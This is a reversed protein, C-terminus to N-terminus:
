RTVLETLFRVARPDHSQGLWFIARNRLSHDPETRAIAILQEVAAAEHRQSYVFLLYKRLSRDATREYLSSLADLAVGSQGAWFIAVRRLELPQDARAALQVLWAENGVDRQQSLAFIIRRGLAESVDRTLVGRLFDRDEPSAVLQGAANWDRRQALWFAAKGRSDDALKTDGIRNKLMTAAAPEPRQALAFPVADQLRDDGGVAGAIRQLAPLADAARAYGLWSIAARRTGSPVGADRALRELGGTVFGSDALTAAEIADGAVEERSSERALGLLYEAAAAAPVTGLDTGSSPARGSSPGVRLELRTVQGAARTLSLRVPGPHCVRNVPPQGAHSDWRQTRYRFTLHQVDNFDLEGRPGPRVLGILGAGDGCADPRAAYRMTVQGTPVGAVRSAVTQGVVWGPSLVAVIFVSGPVVLSRWEGWWRGVRGQRNM